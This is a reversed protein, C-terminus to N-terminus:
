KGYPVPALPADSTSESQWHWRKPKLATPKAYVHEFCNLLGMCMGVYIMSQNDWSMDVYAYMFHMAIYLTCTLAIASYESSPLRWIVRVGLMIASCILFIMATFGHIGTKMWMWFISNHVIYEWWDFTSIDAMPVVIFFKKGFGVGFIPSQEVTFRVNLNEIVRYVNSSADISNPDPAIMSRIAQAPLGLAGSSNWFVGIYGIAGVAAIPALLWFAKRNERFLVFAVFILAIALTLFSARRQSALYSLAIPAVMLLLSLRKASSTKYIWCAILFIFFSNIHIASSHEALRDITSLSFGLMISVVYSGILGEIFIGIICLWFLLKIHHRQQILNSTMILMVPLYFIPRSEWLAIVPSGGTGLGYLVGTGVFGGFLIAPILLEGAYFPFRQRMGIRGFWSLFTIAIYSELPSIILSDSLYLLSEASSFNKEFPYWYMLAMDGTLGFFMILYIGYRPQFLIAAAGAMYIMWAVLSPEPGKRWVWYSVLGLLGILCLHWLLKYIAEREKYLRSNDWVSPKAQLGTVM